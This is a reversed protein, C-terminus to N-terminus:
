KTRLIKHKGIPIRSSDELWYGRKEWPIRHFVERFLRRHLSEQRDRFGIFQSKFIMEYIKRNRSDEDADKTAQFLGEVL